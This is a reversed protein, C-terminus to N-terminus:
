RMRNFGISAYFQKLSKAPVGLFEASFGEYGCFHYDTWYLHGDSDRLVGGDWEGSLTGYKGITYEEDHFCHWDIAVWSGDAFVRSDLGEPALPPLVKIDRLTRCQRFRSTAAAKFRDRNANCEFPLYSWIVFLVLAALVGVISLCTVLAKKRASVTKSRHRM